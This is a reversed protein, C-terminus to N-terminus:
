PTPLHNVKLDSYIWGLRDISIAFIVYGEYRVIVGLAKVLKFDVDISLLFPLHLKREWIGGGDLIESATTFTPRFRM